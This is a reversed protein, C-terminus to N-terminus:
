YTRAWFNIVDGTEVSVTPYVDSLGRGDFQILSKNNLALNDHLTVSYAGVVTQAITDAWYLGDSSVQTGAECTFTGIHELDGKEPHGWLAFTATGGSALEVAILVGGSLRTFQISGSALYDQFHQNTRQTATPVATTADVATVERFKKYATQTTLLYAM